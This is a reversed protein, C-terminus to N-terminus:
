APLPKRKGDHCCGCTTRRVDTTSFIRGCECRTTFTRQSGLSLSSGWVRGVRSARDRARAIAKQERRPQRTGRCESCYRAFVAGRAHPVDYDVRGCGDGILQDPFRIAGVCIMLPEDRSLELQAAKARDRTGDARELARYADDLSRWIRTMASREMGDRPTFGVHEALEQQRHEIVLRAAAHIEARKGALAANVQDREHEAAIRPAAHVAGVLDLARRVKTPPM